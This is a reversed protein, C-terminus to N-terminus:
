KAGLCKLCTPVNPSWREDNNTIHVDPSSMTLREKGWKHDRGAPTEDCAFSVGHHEGKGLHVDGTLSSVLGFDAAARTRGHVHVLVLLEMRTDAEFRTPELDPWKLDLFWRHDTYGMTFTGEGLLSNLGEVLVGRTIKNQLDAYAPGEFGEARPDGALIEKLLYTPWVKVILEGLAQMTKPLTVILDTPGHAPPEESLCHEYTGSVLSVRTEISQYPPYKGAHVEQQLERFRRMEPYGEIESNHWGTAKFKTFLAERMKMFVAEERIETKM